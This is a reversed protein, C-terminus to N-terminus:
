LEEEQDMTSLMTMAWNYDERAVDIRSHEKGIIIRSNEIQREANAMVALLQDKSFGERYGSM